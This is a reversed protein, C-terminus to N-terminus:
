IKEANYILSSALLLFPYYSSFHLMIELMQKKNVWGKGLMNLQLAILPRVIKALKEEMIMIM